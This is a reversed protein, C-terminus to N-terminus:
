TLGRQTEDAPVPAVRVARFGYGRLIFKLLLKLRYDADRYAGGRRERPDGTDALDITYLPRRTM